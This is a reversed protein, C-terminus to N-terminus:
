SNRTCLLRGNQELKIASMNGHDLMDNKIEYGQVKMFMCAWLAYQLYNSMGVIETETSSKVNLKQRSLKGDIIGIGTTILGGTHSRKNYHINYSADIYTHLSHLDRTGIKRNDYKTGWLFQLVCKLKDWDDM